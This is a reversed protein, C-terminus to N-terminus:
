ICYHADDSELISLLKSWSINGDPTYVGLDDDIESLFLEFGWLKGYNRVHIPILTPHDCFSKVTIGDRSLNEAWIKLGFGWGNLYVRKGRNYFTEM